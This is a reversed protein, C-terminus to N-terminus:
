RAPEPERRRSPEKVPAPEPIPEVIIERREPGIPGATTEPM